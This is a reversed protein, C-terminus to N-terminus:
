DRLKAHYQAILAALIEKVLRDSDDNTLTRSIEQFTLHIAVSKFGAEVGEGQYVDFIRVDALVDGAVSRVTALLDGAAVSEDVLVALDRQVAPFRSISAFRAPREFAFGALAIECLLLEGEIGLAEAQGPHLAGIWGLPRGAADTIRASRGPHLAPHRDTVFRLEGCCGLTEEIDGKLDFFDGARASEGWQRPHVPGTMACALALPEEHGELPGIFRRGIEFLRVREQQRSLNHRVASVLGPWLSTRMVALDNALPNALALAEQGPDLRGQLEPDVFSYSIAEYYGRDALAQRLWSVLRTRADPVPLLGAAVVPRSDPLRDYGHIRAIEEILDVELAIDFRFSPPRVRWGDAVAEVTMGLRELIDVVEDDAIVVGLLREISARELLIGTVEGPGRDATTSTLPGPEGGVIEILLATAREIAREPLTEDVGREFRHASDTHLGYARAQGAIATPRFHAAELCVARTTESVASAQGGMIGALALPAAEDAIILSAPRLEVERGDLLALTEGERGRRVHITGNLRDLDFAHMPQGLELMVLNTVDVVPGLSRLGSRRLREQLWLPSDLTPDIGTVVRGVYRPCAEADDVTVRRTQEHAPSVPEIAAPTFAIRNLTAVERAIGAISLCDGRNPTLAVEICTDDLSLAEVIGTGPSLDAPLELLGEAQEALGLEAASCLMGFSAVGRLRAEKIELGGPLTAGVRALPVLIGPRANAAGCVITLRAHGDDVECVQLRDAEPHPRAEVIRAVVVGDIAPAAPEIAEVELGAMTLQEALTPTDIDPDVWERLWQESFRM